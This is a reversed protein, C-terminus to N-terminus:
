SHSSKERMRREKFQTKVLEAGKQSKPSQHVKSQYRASAKKWKAERVKTIWILHSGVVELQRSSIMNQM